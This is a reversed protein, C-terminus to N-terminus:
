RKELFSVASLGAVSGQGVAKSIQYPKGTCDGAGYAGAINTEMMENVLIAGNKTELGPLLVDARQTERIIFVGEVPIERQDLVLAQVLDGNGKLAVPKGEEIEMNALANREKKDKLPFYYLKDVVESLFAAEEWGEGETYDLLAVKRNRFLPGDCTACYSVGRGLYDSEGELQKEIHVGTTIIVTKSEYEKQGSKVLFFDGMHYISSVKESHITIGMKEAHDLFHDRLERGSIGYFGLYNDVREAKELWPSCVKSGLVLFSKKRIQLNLAASLGAPGCGVVISDLREM